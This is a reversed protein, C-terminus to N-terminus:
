RMIIALVVESLLFTCVVGYTYVAFKLLRKSTQDRGRRRIVEIAGLVAIIGMFKIFFISDIGQTHIFYKVLPNLEMGGQNLLIKTLVGDTICFYPFLIFRAYYRRDDVSISEVKSTISTTTQRIDSVDTIM